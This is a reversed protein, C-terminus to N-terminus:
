VRQLIDCSWMLHDSDESDAKCLPCIVEVSLTRRTKVTYKESGEFKWVLMDESNSGAIPISFICATTSDDVITHVLEKNWTCTEHEILQNVSTWSPM